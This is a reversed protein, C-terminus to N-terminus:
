ARTKGRQAIGDGRKSASSKVSGGKKFLKGMETRTTPAKDEKKRIEADKVEQDLRANKDKRKFRAGEEADERDVEAANVRQQEKLKLQKEADILKQSKPLGHMLV